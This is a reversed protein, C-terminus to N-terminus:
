NIRQCRIQAVLGADLYSNPALTYQRLSASLLDIEQHTALNKALLAPTLSALLGECANLTQQLASKETVVVQNFRLSHEFGDLTGVLHFLHLGLNPDCGNTLALQCSLQNIRHYAKIVPYSYRTRLAPEELLLVGKEKVCNALQTLAQHISPVHILLYRCYVLDFQNSFQQLDLVSALCFEIPAPLKQSHIAHKAQNLFAESNDIAIVQGHSGVQEALWKTMHGSGCGIEAVRMGPKLGMDLLFQQSQQGLLIQMGDLQQCGQEDDALTYHPSNSM